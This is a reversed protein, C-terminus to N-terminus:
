GPLLIEGLGDNGAAGVWRQVRDWKTGLAAGAVMLGGVGGHASIAAVARGADRPSRHRFPVVQPRDDALMVGHVEAGM